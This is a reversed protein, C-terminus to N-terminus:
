QACLDIRVQFNRNHYYTLIFSLYSVKVGQLMNVTIGQLDWLKGTNAPVQNWSLAM